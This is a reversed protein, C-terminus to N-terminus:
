ATKEEYRGAKQSVDAVFDNVRGPAIDTPLLWSLPKGGNTQRFLPGAGAVLSAKGAAMRASLLATSPTGKLAPTWWCRKKRGANHDFDCDIQRM